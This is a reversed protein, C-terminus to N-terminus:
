AGSGGNTHKIPSLRRYQVYVFICNYYQEYRNFHTHMKNVMKSHLIYIYLIM